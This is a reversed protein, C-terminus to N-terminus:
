EVTKKAFNQTSEIPAIDHPIELSLELLKSLRPLMARSDDILGAAVLANDLVQEAVAKALNPQALHARHLKVIIPHKPNIELQQKPLAAARNPDMFKMMKRFAASEHDVIVAPSGVLRKTQRVTTLKDSLCERMWTTLEDVQKDSLSETSKDSEPSTETTDNEIKAAEASVMKKGKYEALHSMVFEDVSSYLFLVELGKTKFGEYYPSDQALQRSPVCLYYIENQGSKMREIYKDLSTLEEEASSSEMRLLKAIDEKYKYDTCAGEKLFTGFDQFWQEYKKKDRKAEDDLYKLIRKTLVTSLKGVLASDQLMERSINLSLDESDVVGKVFRLWEPLLGRAKSQILVKRCFLSVGPELRGMGYKEMHQSPFYLLARVNIPSDTSYHLRYFPKDYAKAIFQYFEEHEQDTVRDKSMMWLAKVTNVIDGNLRIPVGVFNSYKKVINEITKRDSFERCTSKLRIVIKTGRAVNQAERITYSGSGDSEWAYGPSGENASRSYVTVKDGVMFASYFGVGFQGIIAARDQTQNMDTLKKIFEASGSHGIRGLNAVLEDRSMGVGSDQITLTRNTDDTYITVELPAEPDTIATGGVQLHRLKEMADSCNSILERVFVEKETYLSSAVINLIKQTETQFEHKSAEGVPTENSPPPTFTKASKSGGTQQEEIERMMAEVDEGAMDKTFKDELPSRETAFTRAMVPVPHLIPRPVFAPSRAALARLPLSAVCRVLSARSLRVLASARFM